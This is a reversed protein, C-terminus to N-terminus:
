SAEKKALTFCDDRWICGLQDCVGEVDTAFCAINGEDAQINRVLSVKTLKGTKIGRDKAISRIEQMNM